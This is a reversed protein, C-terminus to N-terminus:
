KRQFKELSEWFFNERISREINKQSNKKAEEISITKLIRSRSAEKLINVKSTNLYEDFSHAEVQVCDPNERGWM